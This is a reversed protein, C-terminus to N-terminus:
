EDKKKKATTKPEKKEVKAKEDKKAAPKKATTKKAAPKKAAPKDEKTEKPSTQEVTKVEAVVENTTEEVVPVEVPKETVEAKAKAKKSPIFAKVTKRKRHVGYSGNRIKGRKTKKDGKGM